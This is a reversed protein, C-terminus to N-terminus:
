IAPSMSRNMPAESTYDNRHAFALAILVALGEAGVDVPRPAARM